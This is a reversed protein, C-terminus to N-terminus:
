SQVREYEQLSKIVHNVVTDSDDVAKYQIVPKDTHNRLVDTAWRYREARTITMKEDDPDLRNTDLRRQQRKILLNIDADGIIWYDPEPWGFRWSDHTIASFAKVTDKFVDLGQYVLTSLWYRDLLIDLGSALGPKLIKEALQCRAACFLCYETAQAPAVSNPNYNDLLASRIKEGVTTAGPERCTKLDKHTRNPFIEPWKSALTAVLTTKGVFDPGEVVVFLGRRRLPTSTSHTLEPM